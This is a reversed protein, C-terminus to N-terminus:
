RMLYVLPFLVIWVLDVMHWYSAGTEIGVYNDSSYGGQKAKILVASLIVLGLFVHMYHFFTMSIYYTYFANTSLSIGESFKTYFEYTKIIIFVIGTAISIGLWFVTKNREDRKIANVSKAVFFSSSLLVLTNLLGLRKDLFLQHENFLEINQSRVIVYTLFFVGFVMLEAYIFIWIALDGPLPYPISSKKEAQVNPFAICM